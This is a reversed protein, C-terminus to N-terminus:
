SIRVCWGQLVRSSFVEVYIYELAFWYGRFAVEFSFPKFVGEVEFVRVDCAHM